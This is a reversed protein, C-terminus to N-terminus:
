LTEPVGEGEQIASSFSAFLAVALEMSKRRRRRRRKKKKSSHQGM